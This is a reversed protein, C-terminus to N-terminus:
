FPPDNEDFAGQAVSPVPEVTSPLDGRVPGGLRANLYANRYAKGTQTDVKKSEVVAVEVPVDLVGDWIPSGPRVLTLSFDEAATDVGLTLLDKKLFGLKLEAERDDDFELPYIKEIAHGRWQDDFTVEFTLKLFAKGAKSEFFDVDRFLTQYTGPDPLQNGYQDVSAKKFTDDYRALRDALEQPDMPTM